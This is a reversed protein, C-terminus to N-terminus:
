PPTPCDGRVRGPRCTVRITRAGERTGARCGGARPRRQWRISTACRARQGGRIARNDNTMDMRASTRDLHRRGLALHRSFGVVLLRQMCPQRLCPEACSAGASGPLNRSIRQTRAQPHPRLRSDNPDTRLGRTSTSAACGNQAQAHRQACATKQGHTCTGDVTVPDTHRQCASVCCTRQM